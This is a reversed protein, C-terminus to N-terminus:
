EVLCRALRTRYVGDDGMSIYGLWLSQKWEVVTPERVSWAEEGQALIDLELGGREWLVGDESWASVIRWPGPDTQSTDYGGYFMVFGDDSELISSQAM